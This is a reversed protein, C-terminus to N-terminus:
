GVGMVDSLFSTTDIRRAAGTPCNYVCAMFPYDRCMDCKVPKKKPRRKKDTDHDKDEKGSERKMLYRGLFGKNRDKEGDDGSLTVMSINGYDCSRACKGCGICSDEHYIEGGTGRYIAGTPCKIMCVPDYCHRCSTAILLINNLRSGKRTLRSQNDHLAGCAKVCTDCHICKTFDIVLVEKSLVSGSDIVHNLAKEMFTDNRLQINKDETREMQKEMSNRIRPYSGMIHNFDERSIRILETRDIATVTAMRKADKLIAMEGFYHGGKLYALVKKEGEAGTESIKVSGYRVLYVADAEEGQHFVIDGQGYSHLTAKETLKDVLDFPLGMFVPTSLLQSALVRKRYLDDIRNKVGPFNDFLKLLTKKSIILVETPEIAAIDATRIYGSLAAIEGFIDGARILIEGTTNDSAKNQTLEVGLLGSLVIGCDDGYDGYKYIFQGPGFAKIDCDKLVTLLEDPAVGSFLPVKLIHEKILPKM